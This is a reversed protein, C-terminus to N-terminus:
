HRGRRVVEGLAAPDLEPRGGAHAVTVAAAAGAVWAADEPGAGGLLTAALAALSADGAGTPDVPHGGLHPIVIEGDAWRPDTELMGAAAGPAPGSRWAVVDGEEGAALSVLRPGATLLEAAAERVDDVGHLPRGVLEAAEVRDARVVDARALVRERTGPDAPAGDSVVIATAPVRDLAARVAAGPQQLQLALLRCGAVLDGAAAVDGATLLVGDPVHEVLRRRGGSEVLDVLLATAAGPRTRVHSVDIGDRAAQERVAAGAADDGVVGVLAVPVGLQAFAVAQNAGKGGLLERRGTATAAGGPSPLAAVLLVLDRGVQGLVVADTM